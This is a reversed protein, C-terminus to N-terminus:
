QVDEICWAFSSKEHSISVVYAIFYTRGHWLHHFLVQYLPRPSPFMPTAAIKYLPWSLAWQYFTMQASTHFVSHPQTSLFCELYLASCTCLGQPLYTRLLNSSCCPCCHSQLLTLNLLPPWLRPLPDSWTPGQLDKSPSQSKSQTFHPARSPRFYLLPM